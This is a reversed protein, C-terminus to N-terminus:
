VGQLVDREAVYEITGVIATEDEALLVPVLPVGKAQHVAQYTEKISMFNTENLGVHVPKPHQKRWRYLSHIEPGALNLAVFNAM